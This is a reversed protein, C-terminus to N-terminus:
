KALAAQQLRRVSDRRSLFLAASRSGVKGAAASRQHWGSAM